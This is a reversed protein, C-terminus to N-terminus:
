DSSTEPVWSIRGVRGGAGVAWGTGGHAPFAVAHYAPEPGGKWRHGGDFSVDWGSTGVAIVVKGGTGPVYAVCSRYGGLSGPPIASWTKGGDRTLAGVGESREPELYDGGVAIGRQGDGMAVSFVGRSPAGSQLPTAVVDWNGGWDSSRLVRAREGGSGIWVKGEPGVALGTGSAAFGAEEKGAAPFGEPSLVSWSRGGDLTEIVRFVGDVPDSFGLGRNADWFDMGDFFASEDRDRYCLSWTGGGDDTRCVVAPQGASLVVASNEDFGEIDRFDLGRGEVGEGFSGAVEIRGVTWTSGGDVTRLFTGDSGSAWVVRDSVVSLGRLNAETLVRAEEWAIEGSVAPNRAREFGTCGGEFAFCLAVGVLVAEVRRM